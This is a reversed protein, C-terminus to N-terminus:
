KTGHPRRGWTPETHHAWARKTAPRQKDPWHRETMVQAEVDKRFVRTERTGEEIGEEALLEEEAIPEEQCLRCQRERVEVRTVAVVGFLRDLGLYSHGSRSRHLRRGRSRQLRQQDFPLAIVKHAHRYRLLGRGAALASRVIRFFGSRARGRWRSLKGNLRGALKRRGNEHEAI